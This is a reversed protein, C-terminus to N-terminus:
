GGGEQGKDLEYEIEIERWEGGQYKDNSDPAWWQKLRYHDGYHDTILPEDGFGSRDGRFWKMKNTPTV